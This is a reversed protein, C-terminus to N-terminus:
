GKLKNLKAADIHTFMKNIRYVFVNLIIVSLLVDLFIAMEVFFPMGGSVSSAALFIGNEMVLLGVTQSLAKMRFIMLFMGALIITFSATLVIGMGPDQAPALMRSFSWSAYTGALILVLSLQTNVFLGLNENIRIKRAIRSLFHPILVVKLTFLLGAIIYLQIEGERIARILTYLFLFFSQLAFGRALATFRKAIVMLYVTIIIGLVIVTEM